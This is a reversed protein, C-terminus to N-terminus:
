LWHLVQTNLCYSPWMGLLYWNCIYVKSRIIDPLCLRFLQMPGSHWRHQQKRYAEYSEPLECQCQLLVLALLSFSYISITKLISSVNSFVPTTTMRAMLIPRMGLMFDASGASHGNMPHFGCYVWAVWYDSPKSKWCTWHTSLPGCITWGDLFLLQVELLFILRSGRITESVSRTLSTSSIM